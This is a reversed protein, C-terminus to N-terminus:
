NRHIRNSSSDCEFCRLLIFPLRLNLFMSAVTCNLVLSLLRICDDWCVQLCFCTFCLLALLFLVACMFINMSTWQANQCSKTRQDFGSCEGHAVNLNHMNYVWRNRRLSNWGLIVWTISLDLLPRLNVYFTLIVSKDACLIKSDTALSGTLIFGFRARCEMFM